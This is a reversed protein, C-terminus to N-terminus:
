TQEKPKLRAKQWDKKRKTKNLRNINPKLKNIKKIKLVVFLRYLLLCQLSLYKSKFYM